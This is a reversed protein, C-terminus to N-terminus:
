RGRGSGRRRCFRRALPIGVIHKQFEGAADAGFAGLHHIGVDDDAVVLHEHAFAAVTFTGSPFEVFRQNVTVRLRIDGVYAVVLGAGDRQVEVTFDHRATRVVAPQARVVLLV